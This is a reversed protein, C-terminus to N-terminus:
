MEDLIGSLTPIWRSWEDRWGQASLSLIIPNAQIVKKRRKKKVRKM